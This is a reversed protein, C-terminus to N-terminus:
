AYNLMTLRCIISASTGNLFEMVLRRAAREYVQPQTSREGFVSDFAFDHLGSNKTVALVEPGVHGTSGNHICDEASIKPHLNRM